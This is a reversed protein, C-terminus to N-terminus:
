VAPRQAWFESTDYAAQPDIVEGLLLYRYIERLANHLGYFDDRGIPAFAFTGFRNQPHMTMIRDEYFEEFYKLGSRKEGFADHIFNQADLSTPSAIGKSRLIKLVIAFSADLSIWLPYNAEESFVSHMNLMSSKLWTSLGRILLHDHDDIAAYIDRRVSDPLPLHFHQYMSPPLSAATRSPTIGSALAHRLEAEVDAIVDPDTFSRRDDLRISAYHPYQAMYGRDMGIPLALSALLRVEEPTPEDYESYYEGEHTDQDFRCATFILDDRVVYAANSLVSSRSWYTGFPSM